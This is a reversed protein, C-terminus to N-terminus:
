RKTKFTLTVNQEEQNIINNFVHIDFGRLNCMELSKDQRIMLGLNLNFYRAIIIINHKANCVPDIYQITNLM